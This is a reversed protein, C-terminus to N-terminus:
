KEGRRDDDDEEQKGNPDLDLPFRKPDPHEPLVEEWDEGLLNEANEKVKNDDGEDSFAYAVKAVHQPRLLGEEDTEIEVVDSSAGRRGRPSTITLRDGFSQNRGSRDVELDLDSQKLFTEFESKSIKRPEARDYIYLDSTQLDDILEELRFQPIDPEDFLPATLAQLEEYFSEKMLSELAESLYRGHKGLVDEVGFGLDGLTRVMREDLHDYEADPILLKIKEDGEATERTLVASTGKEILVKDDGKGRTLAYRQEEEVTVGLKELTRRWISWDAM